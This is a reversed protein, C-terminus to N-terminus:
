ITNITLIWKSNGSNYVRPIGNELMIQHETKHADYGLQILKQKNCNFRHQRIGDISYFYTAATYKKLILDMKIIYSVLQGIWILM